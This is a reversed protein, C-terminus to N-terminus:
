ILYSEMTDFDHVSTPLVLKNSITMGALTFWVWNWQLILLKMLSSINTSFAPQMKFLKLGHVAGTMITGLVGKM